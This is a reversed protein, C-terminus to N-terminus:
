RAPSPDGAARAAPGQGAGAEIGHGGLHQDRAGLPTVPLPPIGDFTM